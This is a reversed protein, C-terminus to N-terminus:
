EAAPTPTAEPTPPSEVSPPPPTPSAPTAPATPEESPAPTQESERAGPLPPEVPPPELPPLVAPSDSSAKGKKMREALAFNHAAARRQAELAEFAERARDLEELAAQHHPAPSTRQALALARYAAAYAEATLGAPGPAAWRSLGLNYWVKAQVLKKKGSLQKAAAELHTRGGQWDGQEIRELAAKVEPFGRLRYLEFRPRVRLVDVSREIELALQDVAAQRLEEVEDGLLNKEFSEQQLVRATPGEYVTLEARASVEVAAALYSQFETTCGYFGCYPTPMSDWYRKVGDELSARLFMVATTGDIQGAERAPELQDVPVRRVERKGDQALHAALRDLLYSEIPNDGGSVWITPFVRVPVQAPLLQPARATLTQACGTAFLLGLAWLGPGMSKLLARAAAM